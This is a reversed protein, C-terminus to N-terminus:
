QLCKKIRKNEELIMLSRYDGTSGACWMCVLRIKVQEPTWHYKTLAFGSHKLKMIGLEQNISM